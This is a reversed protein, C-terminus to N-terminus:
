CSHENHHRRFECNCINPDRDLQLSQERMRGFTDALFDVADQKPFYHIHYGCREGYVLGAERLVKMHQSVASETINMKKALSRVCHKRELLQGFIKLRMPEGLAKMIYELEM